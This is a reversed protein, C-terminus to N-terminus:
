SAKPVVHTLSLANKPIEAAVLAQCVVVTIVIQFRQQLVNDIEVLVGEGGNGVDDILDREEAWDESRTLAGLDGCANVSVRERACWDHAFELTDDVFDEVSYLIGHITEEIRKTDGTM